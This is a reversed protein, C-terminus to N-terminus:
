CIDTNVCEIKAEKTNNDNDNDLIEWIKNKELSTLGTKKKKTKSKTTTPLKKEIQYQQQQEM